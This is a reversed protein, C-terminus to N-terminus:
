YHITLVAQNCSFGWEKGGELGHISLNISVYTCVSVYFGKNLQCKWDPTKRLEQSPTAIRPNLAMVRVFPVAM